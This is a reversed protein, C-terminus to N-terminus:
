STSESREKLFHHSLRIFDGETIIGILTNDEETVLVCGVRGEWMLFAVDLLTDTPRVTVLERQMILKAPQKHILENRETAADSLFSSSAHLLDSHTILGVLKHGQVVPLHRFRFAQMHEELHELIDDPGITFINKTMLDRALRPNKGVKLESVGGKLRTSPPPPPLKEAHPTRAPKKAEFAEPEVEIASDPPTEEDGDVKEVESM